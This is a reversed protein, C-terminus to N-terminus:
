ATSYYSATFRLRGSSNMFSVSGIGATTFTSNKFFVNGGGGNNDM